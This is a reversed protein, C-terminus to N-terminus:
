RRWWGDTGWVGDVAVLAGLFGLFGCSVVLVLCASWAFFDWSLGATGALAALDKTGGNKGDVPKQWWRWWWWWQEPQSAFRQSPFMCVGPVSLCVCLPRACGVRVYMRVYCVCVGGIEGRRIAREPLDETPTSYLLTARMQKDTHM